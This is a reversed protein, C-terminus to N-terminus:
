NIFCVSHYDESSYNSPELQEKDKELSKKMRKREKERERKEKKRKKRSISNVRKSKNKM